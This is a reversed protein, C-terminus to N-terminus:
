GFGPIERHSGDKAHAKKYPQSAIGLQVSLSRFTQVLEDVARAIERQENRLEALETRLAQVEAELRDTAAGGSVM